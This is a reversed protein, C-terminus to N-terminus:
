SWSGDSLYGQEIEQNMQDIDPAPAREPYNYAWEIVALKRDRERRSIDHEANRLTRRVWEALSVGQVKAAREYAEIEEDKVIVQLRKSM